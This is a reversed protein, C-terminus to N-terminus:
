IRSKSSQWTKKEGARQRFEEVHETRICAVKHGPAVELMPPRQHECAEIAFPCRATFVCGPIDEILNPPSGPISILERELQRISPFANKLGLTYPHYTNRFIEVAPAVEMLRGAYMIGIRDSMEAIVSIDHTILLISAPHKSRARLERLNRLIREQVLVDLGTTPEDMIILRPDLCLSMAIMARQRMGGSFEHPYNRMLGAQLGVADFLAAVRQECEARSLPAHAQIAEVIQDGVRYVPNLANMASQIVLSIGQWLVQERFDRDPMSLLDKGQFTMKDASVRANDPVLRMITRILTSKGCGSEGALGFVENEDISLSLGDVAKVTGKSTPYHTKLNEIELLM